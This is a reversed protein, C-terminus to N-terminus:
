NYRCARDEPQHKLLQDYLRGSEDCYGKKARMKEYFDPILSSRIDEAVCSNADGWGRMIRDESDSFLQAGCRVM